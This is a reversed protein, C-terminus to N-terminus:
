VCLAVWVMGVLMIRYMEREKEDIDYFELDIKKQYMKVIEGERVYMINIKYLLSESDDLQVNVDCACDKYLESKIESKIASCALSALFDIHHYATM